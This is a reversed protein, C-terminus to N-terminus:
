MSVINDDDGDFGDDVDDDGNYDDDDDDDFRALSAKSWLVDIIGFLSLKKNNNNSSSNNNPWCQAICAM